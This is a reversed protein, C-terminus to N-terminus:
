RAACTSSAMSSTSRPSARSCCPSVTWDTVRTGARRSLRRIGSCTARASAATSTISCVTSPFWYRMVKSRASQLRTVDDDASHPQRLHSQRTFKRTHRRLSSATQTSILPSIPLFFIFTILVPVLCCDNLPFLCLNRTSNYCIRSMYLRICPM